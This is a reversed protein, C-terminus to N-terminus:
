PVVLGRATFELDNEGLVDTSVRFTRTVDGPQSGHFTLSLVHVDKAASTTDRVVMQKDTGQIRTIRFPQVGRVIVKRETEKGAKVPGLVVTGPSISLASEVEVTLPVRMRPTALNNTALWIDSYWKGVPTDPRLRATLQYAVEVGDRRVMKCLPQIYNSDSAIGTIQWNTDGFLSITTSAVPSTSRKVRGMALTDPMITVDDRSNAQLWLRIEDFRPQDFTVFITVAKTGLFRTTDMHALIVTEQGPALDYQFARVSTCGCSVRLGAIHVAAGTNNVLRFPHTLMPGRPVAGLDRGLEDFMGEAWPSAFAPIPVCLGLLCVLSYRVMTVKGQQSQGPARGAHETPPV